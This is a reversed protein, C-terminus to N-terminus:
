KKNQGGMPTYIIKARPAKPNVSELDKEFKPKHLDYWERCNSDIYKARIFFKTLKNIFQKFRWSGKLENYHKDMTGAYLISQHQDCWEFFANIDELTYLSKSAAKEPNVIDWSKGLAWERVSDVNWSEGLNDLFLFFNRYTIEYCSTCGPIIKFISALSKMRKPLSLKDLVEIIKSEDGYIVFVDNKLYQFELKSKWKETEEKKQEDKGVEKQKNKTERLKDAQKKMEKVFSTLEKIDWGDKEMLPLLIDAQKLSFFCGPGVNTGDFKILESVKFKWGNNLYYPELKTYQGYAGIIHTKLKVFFIGNNTELKESKKM